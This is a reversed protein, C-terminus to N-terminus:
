ENEILNLFSEVYNKGMVDATLESRYYKKLNKSYMNKNEIIYNVSKVFSVIDDLKFFVAQKETAVSKLIPIDSLITPVGYASAEIFALPFGESRSPIAFVDFIKYYINANKKYGLWLCRKDVGLKLALDKLSKLEDGDGICIFAWSKLSVLSKIIQELGKRKIIVSISGIIKYNDAFSKASDEITQDIKSLDIDRGNKIVKLKREKIYSSCLEKQHKSLVINKDLFRYVYTSILSFTLSLLKGRTLRFAKYSFPQHITSVFKVNKHKFKLKQIAAYISPRLAHVHVIDFQTFDQSDWFSIKNTGCNFELEKIDDFYYVICKHGMKIFVRVLDRAVIVPGKNALSPVIQAIKLAKFSM